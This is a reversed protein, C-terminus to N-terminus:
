WTESVLAGATPWVIRIVTWACGVRVESVPPITEKWWCSSTQM